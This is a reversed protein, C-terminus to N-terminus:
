RRPQALLAEALAIVSAPACGEAKNNVTIFARQGADLTAAAIRAISQRTAPDPAQLRDFPAWADRAQAYRLGRQLNWRCVLDGPWMARQIALQAAAEPMRDHLGLCLRVGLPKLCAALAPTLLEPDRLELALVPASAEGDPTQLAQLLRRLADHLGAPREPARRWTDPLPSLQVVGVGFTEALGARAPQWWDRLAREPDLFGPNARLPAGTAADRLMADSLAAPAKVVFRFDPRGGRAQAALAAYEGEPIPRYFARDLSVTALLPHRACAALGQASLTAVPHPREWIWGAWGPFHWSSTGLRLRGAWREHLAAALAQVHPTAPLPAVAGDARDAGDAGDDGDFLRQQRNPATPRV